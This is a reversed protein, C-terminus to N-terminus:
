VFFSVDKNIDKFDFRLSPFDGGEMTEVKTVKKCSLPYIAWIDRERENHAGSIYIYYLLGMESAIEKEWM